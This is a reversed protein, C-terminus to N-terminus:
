DAARSKADASNAKNYKKQNILLYLIAKGKKSVKLYEIRGNSRLSSNINQRSHLLELNILETLSKHTKYDLDDYDVFHTRSNPSEKLFYERATFEKDKKDKYIKKLVKWSYPSMSNLINMTIDMDYDVYKKGFYDSILIPALNRM